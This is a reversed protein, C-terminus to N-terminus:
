IHIPTYQIHCTMIVSQSWARVSAMVWRNQWKTTTTRTTCEALRLTVALDQRENYHTQQNIDDDDLKDIERERINEKCEETKNLSKM